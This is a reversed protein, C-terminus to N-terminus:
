RVRWAVASFGTVGCCRVCDKKVLFLDRLEKVRPTVRNISWGLFRAIEANTCPEISIIADFVQKRRNNLEVRVADFAALSTQMIMIVVVGMMM